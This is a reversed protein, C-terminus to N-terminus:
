VRGTFNNGILENKVLAGLSEVGVRPLYVNCIVCKDEGQGRGIKFVNILM